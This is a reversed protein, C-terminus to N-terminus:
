DLEIDMQGDPLLPVDSAPVEIEGEIWDTDPPYMEHGEEVLTPPEMVYNQQVEPIVNRQSSTPELCPRLKIPEKMYDSDMVEATLLPPSDSTEVVKVPLVTANGMMIASNSRGKVFQVRRVSSNARYGYGYEDDVLFRNLEDDPFSFPIKNPQGVYSEYNNHKALHERFHRFCKSQFTCQTYPCGFTTSRGFHRSQVHQQYSAPEMYAEHCYPCKYGWDRRATHSRLKHRRLTMQSAAAYDCHDCAFPRADNHINMHEDYSRKSSLSKRCIGCFWRTRQAPPILSIMQSQNNITSTKSKGNKHVSPGPLLHHATDSKLRTVPLSLKGHRNVFMVKMKMHFPSRVGEFFSSPLVFFMASPAQINAAYVGSVEFTEFRSRASKEAATRSVDQLGDSLM